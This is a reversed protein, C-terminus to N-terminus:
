TVGDDDGILSVYRGRSRQVAGNYNETMSIRGPVFHYSVRVDRLEELKERLNDRDSNDHVVIEIDPDPLRLVTRVCAIVYSLRNRTPIVVSFLPNETTM